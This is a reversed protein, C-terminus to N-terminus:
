KMLLLKIIKASAEKMTIGHGSLEKAAQNVVKEIEDDSLHKVKIGCIGLLNRSKKLM